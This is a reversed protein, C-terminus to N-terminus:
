QGVYEGALSARGSRTGMFYPIPAITATTSTATIPTPTATQDIVEAGFVGAAATQVGSGVTLDVLVCAGLGDGDGDCNGDVTPLQM